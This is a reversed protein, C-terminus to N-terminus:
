RAHEIAAAPYERIGILRHRRWGVQLLWTRSEAVPPPGTAPLLHRRWTDDAWGDFYWASSFPDIGGWRPDIPEGHRRANQMVYCLANRMQRPTTLLVSHYRDALVKGTRGLYRNLGRVVRISWGHMGASLRESSDAECILHVHNGQISFQCIGFGERSASAVFAARLVSAVSMRRLRGIERLVRVTVHVPTWRDFRQRQRHPVGSRGKMRPRGAGERKGGWTRPKLELQKWNKRERAVAEEM